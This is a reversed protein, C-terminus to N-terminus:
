APDCYMVLNNGTIVTLSAVGGRGGGVTILKFHILSDSTPIWSDHYQTVECHSLLTLTHPSEKEWKCTRVMNYQVQVTFASECLAHPAWATGMGHRV